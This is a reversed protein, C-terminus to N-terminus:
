GAVTMAMAITVAMRGRRLRGGQGGDCTNHSPILTRMLWVLVVLVLAAVIVIVVAIVFVVVASVVM